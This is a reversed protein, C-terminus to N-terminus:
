PLVSDQEARDRVTDVYYSVLRVPHLHRDFYSAAAEGVQAAATPNSAYFACLDGLDSLDARCNVIETGAQLEVPMRTAHRPGLVCCGMAMSEVLRYCFPGNGPLDICVAAGAMERLYWSHKTQKTGGKFDVRQDHTLIELASRRIDPSFRLGFRGFVSRSPQSLRHLTRLRCSNRYLWTSSTVYGGPYVNKLPAYGERLHQMKFYYDVDGACRENVHTLDFYDLAVDSWGGGADIRLVVVGEYPQEIDAYSLRSRLAFADHIGEVFARANPHQYRRPWAVRVAALTDDMPQPCPGALRWKVDGAFALGTRWDTAKRM